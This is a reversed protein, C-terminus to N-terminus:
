PDKVLPIAPVQVNVATGEGPASEIALTGAVRQV